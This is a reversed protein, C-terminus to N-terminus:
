RTSGSASSGPTPTRTPATSCSPELPDNTRRFSNRGTCNGHSVRPPRAPFLRTRPEQPPGTGATGSSSSFSSEPGRRRSGGRCSRGVRAGGCNLPLFRSRSPSSCRGCIAQHGCGHCTLVPLDSMQRLWLSVAAELHKSQRQEARGVRSVHEQLLRPCDRDAAHEQVLSLVVRPDKEPEIEGGSGADSGRKM